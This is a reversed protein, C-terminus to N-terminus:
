VSRGRNALPEAGAASRHRDLWYAFLVILWQAQGAWAIALVDPPPPGLLSALYTAALFVVLGWLGYRGIRDIPRTARAYLFIGAAFVAFEAALTGALSDWLGFGVKLASGPVIPLDPRHVVLDLIWHSVVCAGAVWAGARYRRVLWYAFGFLAGWAIAMALSHSIPYSTFDLPTVRTIGPVIGVREIGLLLLSPWLIDLFQAALVLTGLSTAPAYRKAGFAVGFHAIFM